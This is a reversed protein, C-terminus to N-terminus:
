HLEALITGAVYYDENSYFKVCLYKMERVKCGLEYWKVLKM